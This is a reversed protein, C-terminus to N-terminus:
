PTDWRCHFTGEMDVREHGHAGFADRQAQTLNTPLSSSRLCELYSLSAMLTPIPVGVDVATRVLNRLAPLLSRVRATIRGDVILNPLDPQTTYAARIDELLASRIICGGRWIKAVEALNLGYEYTKSAHRLLDLGQAYTLIIALDLAKGVQEAFAARDGGHVAVPGGLVSAVASRETVMGSLDRVRVAWDITPVPIQMDVADQSTWKGTGKQRAADKVKDILRSTPDKEDRKRFIKATIEILFSSLPGTNWRDFVAALEDNGLGAGRHLLDYAEAILQMIGYEIGNHVMKVYHGASKHGVWTVCPEGNVKAAVSELVPRVREYSERPGGPMLSAGYRAGAEGGSIGMGFFHIKKEACLQGHRDTDRFHSNGSDIILDGEEVHPLLDRLVVDVIPAPAVLLVIIRPKELMAVFSAADAASGLPKGAGEALLTQGRAPDKDYGAVSFGHDAMNLVLSRGMVGLGVMGIRYLQAM